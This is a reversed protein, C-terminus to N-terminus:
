KKAPPSINVNGKNDVVNPSQNGSSQVNTQLQAALQRLEDPTMKVFRGKSDDWKFGLKNEEIIQANLRQAMGNSLDIAERWERIPASNQKATVEKNLAKLRQMDGYFQDSACVENPGAVCNYSASAHHGAWYMGGSVVVVLVIGLVLMTTRNM